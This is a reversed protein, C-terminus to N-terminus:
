PWDLGVGGEAILDDVAGQLEGSTIREELYRGPCVTAAYDLHGRITDTSVGYHEAAWALVGALSEWQSSTPRDVEFNGEVVVLFHGTTDYSTGTDGRYSPDRAEYITGDVGIIVHYAIDPWDQGDMHWNQWGRYRPPGITSQQTGAHHITLQTIQHSEMRSTEANRAGWGERPVMDLTRAPGPPPDPLEGFYGAVPQGRGKRLTLDAVGTSNSNRLYTTATAPRYIGLTDLGDGDWDGAFPVDDRDGYVYQIAASGSRHSNTMYVLGNSPRRLGVTDIGDGDWDGVFPVDGPDGFGYDFDAPGLGEGDSGLSNVIYFRAEQPRYISLSDCGDGNFDGVLPVDGPIGFIFTIDAVGTTNGNRLYVNGTSRRYLGPTDIGDCDWDGMFPADAPDGFTLSLQGQTIPDILKWTGGSDVIGIADRDGPEAARASTSVGALLVVM